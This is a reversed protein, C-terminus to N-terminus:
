TKTAKQNAQLRGLLGPDPRTTEVRFMEATFREAVLRSLQRIAEEDPMAGVRVGAEHMAKEVLNGRSLQENRRQAVALTRELADRLADTLADAAASGPLAINGAWDDFRTSTGTWPDVGYGIRFPIVGPAEIRVCVGLDGFLRVDAEVVARGPLTRAVVRHSVPGLGWDAGLVPPPLESFAISVGSDEPADGAVCRWAGAFVDLDGERDAAGIFTLVTKLCSRFGDLGGGFGVEMQVAGPFSTRVSAQHIVFTKGKREVSRMYERAASESSFGITLNAGEKAEITPPGEAPRPVMGAGVIVRRGRDDVKVASAEQGRDGEIGLMIRLDRFGSVLEADIGSGCRDNCPKCLVGLVAWREGLASPFVHEKSDADRARCLRCVKM